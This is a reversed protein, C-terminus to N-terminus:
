CWGCTRQCHIRMSEAYQDSECFQKYSVCEVYLDKCESGAYLVHFYFHKHKAQM